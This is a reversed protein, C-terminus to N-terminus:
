KKDDYGKAFIGKDVCLNKMNELQTKSQVDKKM